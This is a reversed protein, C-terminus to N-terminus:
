PEAGQDAAPEGSHGWDLHLEGPVVPAKVREHFVTTNPLGIGEETGRTYLTVHTPPVVFGHGALGSIDKLFYHLMPVEVMQIITEVDPEEEVYYFENKKYFSWDSSFVADDIEDIDEPHNKLHRRIIEADESIITIHLESKPQFLKGQYRVPQDFYGYETKDLHVLVSGTQADFLATVPFHLNGPDPLFLEM